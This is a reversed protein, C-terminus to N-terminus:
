TNECKCRLYLDCLCCRDASKFQLQLKLKQINECKRNQVTVNVIVIALSDISDHTSLMNFAIWSVTNMTNTYLRLAVYHILWVTFQGCRSNSKSWSFDAVFLVFLRHIALIVFLTWLRVWLKHSRVWLKDLVHIIHWLKFQESLGIFFLMNMQMQMQMQLCIYIKYQTLLTKFDM